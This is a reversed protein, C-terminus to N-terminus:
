RIADSAIADRCPGPVGRGPAGTGPPQVLPGTLQSSHPCPLSRRSAGAEDDATVKPREPLAMGDPRGSRCAVASCSLIRLPAGSFTNLRPVRDTRGRFAAPFIAIRHAGTDGDYRRIAIFHSSHSESALTWTVSRSPRPPEAFRFPSALFCLKGSQEPNKEIPRFRCTRYPAHKRCFGWWATGGRAATFSPTGSM